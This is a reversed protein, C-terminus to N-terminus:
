LPAELSLMRHVENSRSHVFHHHLPQHGVAQVVNHHYQQEYHSQYNEKQCNTKRYHHRIKRKKCDGRGDNLHTKSRFRIEPSRVCSLSVYGFSYELSSISLDPNKNSARNAAAPASVPATPIVNSRNSDKLRNMRNKTSHTCRLLGSLEHLENAKPKLFNMFGSSYKTYPHEDLAKLFRQLQEKRYQLLKPDDARLYSFFGGGPFTPLNEMFEPTQTELLYAYLQRFDNYRREVSYRVVTPLSQENSDRYYVKPFGSRIDLIEIHYQWSSGRKSVGTIRLDRTCADSYLPELEVRKNLCLSNKKMISEKPLKSLQEPQEVEQEEEEKQQLFIEEVALSSLTSSPM